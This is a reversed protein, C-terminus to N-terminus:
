LICLINKFQIESDILVLFLTNEIMNWRSYEHDFTHYIVCYKCLYLDTSIVITVLSILSAWSCIDYTPNQVQQCAKTIFTKYDSRTLIYHVHSFINIYHIVIYVCVYMGAFIRWTLRSKGRSLLYTCIAYFIISRGLYIFVFINNSVRVNKLGIDMFIRLSINHLNVNHITENTDIQLSAPDYSINYNKVSNLPLLFDIGVRHLYM